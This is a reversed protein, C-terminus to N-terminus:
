VNRVNITKLSDFDGGFRDNYAKRVEQKVDNDLNDFGADNALDKFQVDTMSELYEQRAEGGQDVGAVLNKIRGGSGVLKAYDSDPDTKFDDYSKYNDGAYRGGVAFQELYSSVGADKARFKGQVNADKAYSRSMANVFGKRTKKDRLIKAMKSAGGKEAAMGRALAAVRLNYQDLEQQSYGDTNQEALYKLEQEMNDVTYSGSGSGDTFTIGNARMLALADDVKGSYAEDAARTKAAELADPNNLQAAKAQKEEYALIKANSRGAVADLKKVRNWKRSSPDVGASELKKRRRNAMRNAINGKKEEMNIGHKEQYDKWLDSNRVGKNIGSTAKGKLSSGLGSLKAGVSGLAAFAGKVLSPIFFIPIVRILMGALSTYYEGSSGPTDNVNKMVISSALAGGGMLFGCIPYLLLMAKFIKFWKDFVKKTNPLAYLLFAIPSIVVFVIILAKRAGLLFFFFLVAIILGLLGLLLPLLLGWIGSGVFTAVGIGGTIGLTTLLGGILIGWDKKGGIQGAIGELLDKASNGVINSIDVAAQCIIYSANVLLATIVLKPLVKKIGYNDIGVGTLQSFIIVIILIIFGVNAIDRFVRWADFTSDLKGPVGEDSSFFEPEAVLYDEIMNKYASEAFSGMSEATPCALWSLPGAETLCTDVSDHDSTTDDSADQDETGAIDSNGEIASITGGSMGNLFDIANQLTGVVGVGGHSINVPITSPSKQGLNVACDKVKGDSAKLKVKEVNNFSKADCDINGESAQTVYHSYITYLEEDKLMMRYEQLAAMLTTGGDTLKYSGGTKKVVTPSFTYKGDLVTLIGMNEMEKFYEYHYNWILNGFAEKLNKETSDIDNTLKASVKRNESNVRLIQATDAIIDTDTSGALEYSLTQNGADGTLTLKGLNAGLKVYANIYVTNRQEILSWKNDKLTIKFIVASEKGNHQKKENSPPFYVTKSTEGKFSINANMTFTTGDATDEKKYGLFGMTKNIDTESGTWSDKYGKDKLFIKLATNCAIKGDGGGDFTASDGFNYSPIFIEGPEMVSESIRGSDKVPVSSKLKCKVYVDNYVWKKVIETSDAFTNQVILSSLVVSTSIISLFLFFVKSKHKM